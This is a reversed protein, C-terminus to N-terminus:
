IKKLVKRIVEEIKISPNEKYIITVEKEAKSQKFGLSVLALVADESGPVSSVGALSGDPSIFDGIKDKLELILREATKKGIGPASTLMEIDKNRIAHKFKDITIGSLVGQAIKPGIGSVSILKLFLDREEDTTFGFLLMSDERHHLYTLICIEEGEDSLSNFSSLTILIKFGIGHSEVIISAPSKNILTGRIYSIM